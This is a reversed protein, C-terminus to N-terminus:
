GGKLVAALENNGRRVAADIAAQQDGPLPKFSADIMRCRLITKLAPIEEGHQLMDHVYHQAFFLAHQQNDWDLMREFYWAWALPIQPDNQLWEFVHDFGGQRNGRSILAYAHALVDGRKAEVDAAVEDDSREVPDPIYIDDFIDHPAMLQGIVAHLSFVLLLELLLEVMFPLPQLLTSVAVIAALYLPAVLYSPGICRVMSVVAQPNLMQLPAHTVALVALMAPYVVGMLLLFVSMAVNGMVLHIEWSAWAIGVVIVAPFLSWWDGVWRFFETGPPEPNRSRGLTEVLSTLYRFLAPVIVLGLWVGLMGAAAALCVLLWFMALAFLVGLNSLPLTAAKLLDTAKM